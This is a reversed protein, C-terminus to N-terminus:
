TRVRSLPKNELCQFFNVLHPFDHPGSFLGGLSRIKPRYSGRCHEAQEAFGKSFVIFDPRPRIPLIIECPCTASPVPGFDLTRWTQGAPLLVSV